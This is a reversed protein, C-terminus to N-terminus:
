GWYITSQHYMTQPTFTFSYEKTAEKQKLVVLLAPAAGGGGVGGVQAAVAVAVGVAPPVAALHAPSPPPVRHVLDHVCARSM